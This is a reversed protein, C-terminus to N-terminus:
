QLFTYYCYIGQADQLFPHGVWIKLFEPLYYRLTRASLFHLADFNSLVGEVTVEERRRNVFYKINEALEVDHCPDYDLKMPVLPDTGDFASDVRTILNTAM